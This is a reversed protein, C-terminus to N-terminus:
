RPRLRGRLRHRFDMRWRVLGVHGLLAGTDIGCNSSGRLADLLGHPVGRRSEDRLSELPAHLLKNVLRDFAQRVEDQAAM